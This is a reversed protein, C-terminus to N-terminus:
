ELKRQSLGNEPRDEELHHRHSNPTLESVQPDIDLQLPRDTKSSGKNLISICKLTKLFMVKRSEEQVQVHCRHSHKSWCQNFSEKIALDTKKVQGRGNVVIEELVEVCDWEDVEALDIQESGLKFKM